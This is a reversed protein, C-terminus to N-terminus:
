VSPSDALNLFYIDPPGTVGARQMREKLDDSQAFQQLNDMTDWELLIFVENPDSASQFVYGGRSGNLERFGADGDFAEKWKAYDEVNQRVLIHAM